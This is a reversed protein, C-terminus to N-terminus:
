QDLLQMLQGNFENINIIFKKDILKVTRQNIPLRGFSIIQETSKNFYQHNM